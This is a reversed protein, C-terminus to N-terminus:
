LVAPDYLNERYHMSQQTPAHSVHNMRVYKPWPSLSPRPTWSGLSNHNRLHVCFRNSYYRLSVNLKYPHPVTWFKLSMGRWYSINLTHMLLVRGVRAPGVLRTYSELVTRIYRVATLTSAMWECEFSSNTRWNSKGHLFIMIFIIWSVKNLLLSAVNHPSSYTTLVIENM